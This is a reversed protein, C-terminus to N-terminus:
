DAERGLTQMLERWERASMGSDAQTVAEGAILRKLVAIGQASVQAGGLRYNAFAEYTVPVWRKLTELM